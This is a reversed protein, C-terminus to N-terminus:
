TVVMYDSDCSLVPCKFKNNALYAKLFLNIILIWRFYTKLCVIEYDAEFNCQYYGIGHKDLVEILVRKSNIPLISEINKNISDLIRQKARKIRKTNKSDCAGDFIFYSKINCQNLLNFFNNLYIYFDNYDGGFQCNIQLRYSIKHLFANGDVLLTCNNLKYDQFIKDLSNVFTTLGTIGM